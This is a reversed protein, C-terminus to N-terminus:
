PHLWLRTVVGQIVTTVDGEFEVTDDDISLTGAVETINVIDDFGQDVIALCIAKIADVQEDNNYSFLPTNTTTIDPEAGQAYVSFEIGTNPNYTFDCSVLGFSKLIDAPTPTTTTM